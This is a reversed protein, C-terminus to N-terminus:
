ACEMGLMKRIAVSPVLIRKGIRVSAIDGRKIAEYTGNRSMRVIRSVEKPTLTPRMLLESTEAM